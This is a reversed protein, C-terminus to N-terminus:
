GGGVRRPLAFGVSFLIVLAEIVQVTVAPVGALRQMAGSGSALAAFFAASPLVGLPHLRALLAVAIATFGYGPSLNEFLRGTVGSVELAGALGALGGSLLLVLVTERAPSIGAFLSAEPSLGVARLRLGASSRFLLLWIAPPLLAILAFGAHVRSLGPLSVLRAADPLADSQPYTGAAEQLPGHVAYGVALVAVFNLLITSLVESGGRTVRLAAAIGGWLAGAAIGGAALLPVLVASPAEPAARTAVFTAALAGLYLQGEAGINWVGCRFALAIGLGILVLPGMRVITNEVALRDGLAGDVLASFALRPDAGLALLLLAAVLAAAAIAALPELLGRARSL